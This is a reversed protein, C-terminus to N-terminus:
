PSALTSLGVEVHSEEIVEVGTEPSERRRCIWYNTSTVGVGAKVHFTLRDGNHQARAMYQTQTTFFLMKLKDTILYTTAPQDELVEYAIVLPNLTILTPHDKLTESVDEYRGNIIESTVVTRKLFLPWLGM